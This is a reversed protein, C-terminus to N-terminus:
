SKKNQNMRKYCMYHYLIIGPLYCILVAIKNVGCESFPNKKAILCEAVMHVYQKLRWTLSTYKLTVYLRRTEVFSNPSNFYQNIINAAMGDQQYDVFCLNNNILRFPFMQDIKLMMYYPNFNKEGKFTPQPAVKKLLDVRMVPKNDADWKKQQRIEVLHMIADEPFDGGLQTGDPLFDKGVFGAINEDRHQKWYDNIVEVADDPMWDDSDICVCIESDMLEIAKNYGTHLGGNEKYVYRIRFGNDSLMWQDVLDHTNDKSGDDIILWEFDKCTQRCLSEYTRGITHARNYVPTFVTLTAKAKNM